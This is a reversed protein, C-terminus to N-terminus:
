AAREGTVINSAIIASPMLAEETPISSSSSRLATNEVSALILRSYASAISASRAFHGGELDSYSDTDSGGEGGGENGEDDARAHAVLPMLIVHMLACLLGCCEGASRPCM